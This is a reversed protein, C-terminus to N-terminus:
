RAKIMSIKIRNTKSLGPVQFDLEKSALIEQKAYSNLRQSNVSVLDEYDGKMKLYDTFLKKSAPDQPQGFYSDVSRGVTGSNTSYKSKGL